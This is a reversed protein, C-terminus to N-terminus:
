QGAERETAVPPIPRYRRGECRALYRRYAITDACFPCTDAAEDPNHHEGPNGNYGGPNQGEGSTYHGVPCANAQYQLRGALAEAIARWSEPRGRGNEASQTETM